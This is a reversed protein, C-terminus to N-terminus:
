VRELAIEQNEASLCLIKERFRSGQPRSQYEQALGYQKWMHMPVVYRAQVHEMFYDIGLYKDGEQRPDLVVFAVDVERGSLLGIQEKYTKEQYTNSDEPEGEWRWWNLDGAHYITTFAGSAGAGEATSHSKHSDMDQSVRHPVTVLFAVGSDTSLLTEVALGGVEYREGPKVYTIADKISKPLGLRGLMSNGLKKKIEKAFIYHINPYRERWRLVEADFHDRHSHSSFVYVPTDEGLKPMTGHYTCSPIGDGKFYDFVLAAGGTEVCFASHHIYTIKM